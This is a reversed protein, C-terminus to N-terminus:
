RKAGGVRVLDIPSGAVASLGIAVAAHTERVFVLAQLQPPRTLVSSAAFYM